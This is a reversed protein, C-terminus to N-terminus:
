ILCYMEYQALSGKTFGHKKFFGELLSNNPFGSSLRILRLNMYATQLLQTGIGINRYEKDVMLFRITGNSHVSLCGVLDNQQYAGFYTNNKEKALFDIDNQWNIHYSWKNIGKKFVAFDIKKIEFEMNKGVNKLKSLDENSFYVIDYVKEYGLKKYFHIARENGVIVELFLQKCGHKKAETKHLEFLKQSIGSGRYDPGIALAGCRMTKITEYNKIGGLIIGVPEKEYFAIFSSEKENGEPGFFRNLFDEKTFEFKVIYDSFGVQFAQYIFSEDVDSCREFRINSEDLTITQKENTQEM